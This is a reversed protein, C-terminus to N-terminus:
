EAAERQIGGRGRTGDKWERDRQRRAQRKCRRDRGATKDRISAMRAREREEREAGEGRMAQVEGKERGAECGADLM